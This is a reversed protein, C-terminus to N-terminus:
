LEQLINQPLAIIRPVSAIRLEQLEGRKHGGMNAGSVQQM